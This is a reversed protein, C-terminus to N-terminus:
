EFALTNGSVLAVRSAAYRLTSRPNCCLMSVLATVLAALLYHSSHSFAAVRSEPSFVVFNEPLYFIECIEDATNIFLDRFELKGVFESFVSSNLPFHTFYPSRLSRSGSPERQTGFDVLLTGGTPLFESVPISHSANATSDLQVFAFFTSTRRLRGKFFVPFEHFIEM